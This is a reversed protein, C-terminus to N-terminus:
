NPKFTATVTKAAAMGVTCINNNVTACGAWSKLKQGAAPAATLTVTGNVPFYAACTAGCSIGAPSSVVTGSGSRYITLTYKPIAKFTATVSKAATMTVACEGTGVCAGSWGGFYYGSAPTASLTVATGNSYPESCDSGCNIGAPSSVVTGIGSRSVTLVPNAKFTATVSKAVTMTVTCEGTGVCAGSWGSFYYGSAPTASLAVATGSLYPESCDSGCNIGAPSSAVTGSGSRYITLTYKPIAKFTATVSKAATMTVACEGTGVCAGSWGGFTYGSAPTASLTVATGNSYPESCDSGCNIGAPSSVVTGIGSRSVTLVPNAKFTATASKAATMSVTCAGTGTCAGSWSAFQWGTAPTATLTVSIGANYAESCDSGCNIGAPNSTVAGSGSKTVTLAFSPAFTASVAKAATMGLTCTAVTGTCAGTWGTFKSGAAAVATLTVNAGSTYNETCDSGCNIGTGTVTGSGTGAKTVTLTYSSDEVLTEQGLEVGTLEVGSANAGYGDLRFAIRYTGAPLEGVYVSEPEASALPVHRQDLQSVLNENVFVRLLGEGGDTFRWNFRLTNTPNTTTVQTVLWAPTATVATAIAQIKKAAVMSSATPISVAFQIADFIKSGVGKVINVTGQIM